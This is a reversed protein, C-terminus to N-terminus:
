FPLTHFLLYKIYLLGCVGSVGLLLLFCWQQWKVDSINSYLDPLAPLLRKGFLLLSLGFFIGVYAYNFLKKNYWQDLFHNNLTGSYMGYLFKGFLFLAPLTGLGLVVLGLKRTSYEAKLPAEAEENTDDRGDALNNDDM